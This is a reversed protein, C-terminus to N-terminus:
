VADGFLLLFDIHHWVLLELFDFFLEDTAQVYFELLGLRGVLDRHVAESEPLAIVLVVTGGLDNLEDLLM